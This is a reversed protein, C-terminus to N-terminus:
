RGLDLTQEKVEGVFILIWVFSMTFVMLIIPIIWFLCLIVRQADTFQRGQPIDKRLSWKNESGKKFNPLGTM